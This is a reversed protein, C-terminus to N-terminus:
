NVRLNKVALSSIIQGEWNADDPDFEAEALNSHAILDNLVQSITKGKRRVEAKILRM